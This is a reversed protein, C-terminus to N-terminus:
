LSNLSVLLFYFRKSILNVGPKSGMHFAGLQESLGLFAAGNLTAWELLSEIAITPFAAQITRIEDLVSLSANSALSDTGICLRLGEAQFLPIDPMKNEIFLNANACIVYYLDNGSQKALAIDSPAMFTNHVLAIKQSKFIDIYAALASDFGADFHSIDIGFSEYLRTFNGTANQMFINEAASEQNHITLPQTQALAAIAQMLPKSVSYPAHPVISSNIAKATNQMALANAMIQSVNAPNFGLVEFFTHYYIPSQKKVWLSSLNNSIDGVAAIGEAQMQLDAQMAADAIQEESFNNRKTQLSLIFDVIGTHKTLQNQLHSLELHCHSNVFGPALYGEYVEVDMLGDANPLIAEIAGSDALVLVGNEIPSQNMPLLKNAMIKRM